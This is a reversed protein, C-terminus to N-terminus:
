KLYYKINTLYKHLELQTHIDAGVIKALYINSTEKEIEIPVPYKLNHELYIGRSKLYDLFTLWEFKLYSDSLDYVSNEIFWKGPHCLVYDASDELTGQLLDLLARIEIKIPLISSSLSHYSLGIILSGVSNDTLKLYNLCKLSIQRHASIEFGMRYSVGYRKSLQQVDFIFSSVDFTPENNLHECFYLKIKNEKAFKFYDELPIEGDTLNSHFHFLYPIKLDIM